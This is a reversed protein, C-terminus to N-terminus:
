ETGTFVVGGVDDRPTLRMIQNSGSDVVFIKGQSLAIGTARKFKIPQQHQMTDSCATFVANALPVYMRVHAGDAVWVTGMPDIALSTPREFRAGLAPRGDAFQAQDTPVAPVGDGAVTSVMGSPTVRRIRFNGTDAVLLDGTQTVLLDSPDNFQAVTAPGDAFGDIGVAAVTRVRKSARGFFAFDLPISRIRHNETVYLTKDMADIAIGKPRSFRASADFDDVWGQAREAGIPGAVTTVNGATDIKRIRHNGQDALYLNGAQDFVVGSPGLFLATSLPGDAFGDARSALTSVVGGEIKRIGNFLVETVYVVGQPSVAIKFPLNFSAKMAPGDDGGQDGTGAFTEVEFFM